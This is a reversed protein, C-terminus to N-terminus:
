VSSDTCPSVTPDGTKKYVDYGMLIKLIRVRLGPNKLYNFNAVGQEIMHIDWDSLAAVGQADKRLDISTLYRILTGKIM